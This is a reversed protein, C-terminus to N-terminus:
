PALFPTVAALAQAATLSEPFSPNPVLTGGAALRKLVTLHQAENAGIWGAAAKLDDDEFAEVAGLYAGVFATEAAVGTAAISAPSAFTGAAYRFRMGAPSGSGIVAALADYHDKENQRAAELYALVDGTFGGHRIARGYFDIALLEATAALKAIAVDGTPQAVAPGSAAALLSGGAVLALGGRMGASLFEGRSTTTTM